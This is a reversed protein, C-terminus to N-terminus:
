EAKGAKSRKKSLADEASESFTLDVTHENKVPVSSQHLHGASKQFCPRKLVNSNISVKITRTEAKFQHDLELDNKIMELIANKPQGPEDDKSM